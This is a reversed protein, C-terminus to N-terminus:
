KVLRVNASPGTNSEIDGLDPGVMPPVKIEMKPDPKLGNLTPFFLNIHRNESGRSSRSVSTARRLLPFPIISTIAKMSDSERAIQREGEEGRRPRAFSKIIGSRSVITDVDEGLISSLKM